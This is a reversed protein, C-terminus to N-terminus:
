CLVPRGHTPFGENIPPVQCRRLPRVRGSLCGCAGPLSQRFARTRGGDRGWRTKKQFAPPDPLHGIGGSGIMENAHPKSTPNSRARTPTPCSRWGCPLGHTLRPGLRRGIGLTQLCVAAAMPGRSRSPAKGDGPLASAAALPSKGPMAIGRPSPMPEKPPQMSRTAPHGLESVANTTFSLGGAIQEALASEPYTLCTGRWTGRVSPNRWSCLPGRPCSPTGLHCCELRCQDPSAAHRISATRSPCFRPTRAGFLCAEEVELILRARLAFLASGHRPPPIRGRILDSAAPTM